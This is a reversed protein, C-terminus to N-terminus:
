KYETRGFPDWFASFIGQELVRNIIYPIWFLSTMLITLALWFLEVSLATNM